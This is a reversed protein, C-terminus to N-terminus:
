IYEYHINHNRPLSSMPMDPLLLAKIRLDDPFPAMLDDYSQVFITFQTVRPFRQHLLPLNTRAVPLDFVELELHIPLLGHNLHGTLDEILRIINISKSYVDIASTFTLRIRRLSTLTLASLLTENLGYRNGSLYLTLELLDMFYTISPPYLHHQVTLSTIGSGRLWRILNDLEILYSNDQHILASCTYALNSSLIHHGSPYWQLNLRFDPLTWLNANRLLYPRLIRLLFAYFTYQPIDEEQILHRSMLLNMSIITSTQLFTELEERSDILIPVYVYRLAPWNSIQKVPLTSLRSYGLSRIQRIAVPILNMLSSHSQRVRWIDQFVDLHRLIEILIENPLDLLMKLFILFILFKITTGMVTIIPMWPHWEGLKLRSGRLKYLNVWYSDV